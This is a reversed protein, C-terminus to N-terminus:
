GAEGLYASMGEWDKKEFCAMTCSLAYMSSRAEAPIRETKDTAQRIVTFFAAELEAHSSKLAVLPKDGQNLRKAVLNGLIKWANFRVPKVDILHIINYAASTIKSDCRKRLATHMAMCAYNGNM